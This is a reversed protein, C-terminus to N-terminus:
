EVKSEACALWVEAEDVFNGVFVGGLGAFHWGGGGDEAREPRGVSGEAFVAAGDDIGWVLALYAPHVAFDSVQLRALADGIGDDVHPFGRGVALVVELIGLVLDLVVQAALEAGLLIAAVAEVAELWGCVRERGIARAELQQVNQVAMWHTRGMNMEHNRGITVFRNGGLEKGAVVGPDLGVSDKGDLGIEDEIEWGALVWLGVAVQM